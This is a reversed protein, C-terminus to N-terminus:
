RVHLPRKQQSARGQGAISSGHDKAKPYAGHPPPFEDCKEAANYGSPRNRRARLLSRPRHDSKKALLRGLQERAPQAREALAEGFGTVAFAAIDRDFIAPCLAVIISQGSQRTRTRM